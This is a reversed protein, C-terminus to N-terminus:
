VWGVSNKIFDRLNNRDIDDNFYEGVFLNFFNLEQKDTLKSM